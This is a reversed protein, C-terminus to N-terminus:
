ILIKRRFAMRCLTIAKPNLKSGIGLPMDKPAIYGFHRGREYDWSDVRWDFRVGNRTEAFGRAFERTRMISEISVLRTHVQQEDSSMRGAAKADSLESRGAELWPAM